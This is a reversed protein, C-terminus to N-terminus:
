LEKLINNLEDIKFKLKIDGNELTEFYLVYGKESAFSILTEFISSNCPPKINVIIENNSEDFGVFYSSNFANQKRAKTILNLITELNDFDKYNQKTNFIGM